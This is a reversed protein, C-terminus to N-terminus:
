VTRRQDIFDGDPPRVLRDDAAHLAVWGPVNRAVHALAHKLGIAAATGVAARRIVQLVVVDNGHGLAATVTLPVDLEQAASAIRLLSSVNSTVTGVHGPWGERGLGRVGSEGFRPEKKSTM